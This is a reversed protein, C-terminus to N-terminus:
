FLLSVLESRHVLVNRNNPIWSRNICTEFIKLDEARPHKLYAEIEASLWDYSGKILDIFKRISKKENYTLMFFMRELQKDNDKEELIQRCEDETLLNNIVTDRVDIFEFDERFAKRFKEFLNRRNLLPSDALDAITSGNLPPACAM